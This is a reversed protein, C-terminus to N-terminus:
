KRLGLQSEKLVFKKCIGLIKAIDANTITAQSKSNNSNLLNNLDVREQITTVQVAEVVAEVAEM